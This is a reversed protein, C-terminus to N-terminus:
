MDKFYTRVATFGVLRCDTAGDFVPNAATTVCYVQPKPVVENPEFEMVIPRKLKVYYKHNLSRPGYGIGNNSCIVFQKTSLRKFGVTNTPTIHRLYPDFTNSEYATPTRNNDNGLFYVELPDQRRNSVILEVRLTQIYNAFARNDFCLQVRFGTIMIKRGIRQSTQGGITINAGCVFSRAQTPNPLDDLWIEGTELISKSEALSLVQKRIYSKTVRRRKKYGRRFRARRNKKAYVASRKYRAMNKM